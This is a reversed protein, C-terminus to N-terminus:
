QAEARNQENLGWKKLIKLDAGEKKMEGLAWNVAERLDVDEKRFGSGIVGIEKPKYDGVIDMVAALDPNKGLIFAAVPGDILAADLRGLKLDQLAEPVAPYSSIKAGQPALANLWDQYVTGLYSAARYGKKLDELTHIKLPNGKAVVLTEGYQYWGDSFEIQQRRKATIYMADAIMDFRKSLLGPILGAFKDQFMERKPIGLKKLVYELMDADIGTIEKTKPDLFAYPEDNSSGFVFVGRKKVRDFSGDKGTVKPGQAASTTAWLGVVLWAVGVCLVAALVRRVWTSKM